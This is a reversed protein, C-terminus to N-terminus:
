AANRGAVELSRRYRFLNKLHQVHAVVVGCGSFTVWFWKNKKKPFSRKIKILSNRNELM